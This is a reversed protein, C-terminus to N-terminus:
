APVARAARELATLARTARIDSADAHLRVLFPMRACHLSDTRGDAAEVLATVVDEHRSGRTLREALDSLVEATM